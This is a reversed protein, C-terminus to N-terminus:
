RTPASTSPTWSTSAHAPVARDIARSELGAVFLEYAVLQVAQALNISPQDGAMPIRVVHAACARDADALGTKENGFLVALSRGARAQEDCFTAARHLTPAGSTGRHSSTVLVVDIGAVAEEVTEVIRAGDLVDLSKVAMKRAMPHDPVALRGPKVLALQTLGMTKLARAAAGLNEPYHPRVLVVTVARAVPLVLM